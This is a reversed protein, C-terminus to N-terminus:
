RADEARRFNLRAVLASSADEQTAFAIRAQSEWCRAAADSRYYVWRGRDQSVRWATGTARSVHEYTDPAVPRLNLTGVTLAPDNAALRATTSM